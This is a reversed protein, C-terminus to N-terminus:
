MHQNNPCIHIVTQQNMQGDTWGHCKTRLIRELIKRFHARGADADGLDRMGLYLWTGLEREDLRRAGLCSERRYITIILKANRMRVEEMGHQFLGEFDRLTINQLRNPQLPQVAMIRQVEREVILVVLEDSVTM